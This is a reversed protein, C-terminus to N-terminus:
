MQSIFFGCSRMACLRSEGEKRRLASSHWSITAKECQVHMDPSLAFLLVAWPQPTNIWRLLDLKAVLM